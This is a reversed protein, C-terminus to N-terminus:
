INSVGTDSKALKSSQNTSSTAPSADLALLASANSRIVPVPTIIKGSSVCSSVSASGAHDKRGNATPSEQYEIGPVSAIDFPDWNNDEGAGDEKLEFHLCRGRDRRFKAKEGTPDSAIRERLEELGKLRNENRNIRWSAQDEKYVSYQARSWEARPGPPVYHGFVYPECSPVNKLRGEPTWKSSKRGNSIIPFMTADLVSKPHPVKWEYISRSFPFTGAGAKAKPERYDWLLSFRDPM